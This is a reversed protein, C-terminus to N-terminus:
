EARMIGGQLPLLRIILQKYGKVVGGLRWQKRVFDMKDFAAVFVGVIIGGVIIDSSMSDGFHIEKSSVPLTKAQRLGSCM